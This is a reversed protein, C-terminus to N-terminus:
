SYRNSDETGYLDALRRFRPGWDNLYNYDQDGESNASGLSSLSEAVSGNGEYAYTALSDYPPATPSNDNEHVRQNIFNRVDNNDHAAAPARHVPPYLVEPVIDRRLKCEEVSEPNRLTGIDFAQTDEEGGGEDNYSVINDRVDEKSIILTEKKKQRRLAAFLVVITLLIIICLLIAVLAGTSLGATQRLVTTCLEVNGDRDCACVHVEVTGTSSQVPYDGDRIVVPVLYSSTHLRSFGSRQTLISATNDGHDQISFNSHVSEDPPLSFSFRHGGVPDDVDTARVRQIQQGAKANECVFAEYFTDLTPANDNVDLVKIYVPVRSMLGSLNKSIETAIVSINHWAAEERDLDKKTYISGNTDNIEFLQERDNRNEIKYRVPNHLVDHDAASISGIFTGFDANEKVEFTYSSREFVPPEDVDMVHIRVTATDRFHSNHHFSPDPHSNEVQVQLTYENKKEYDLPKKVIITGEQTKKETRIEFLDLGDGGTVSYDMEANKGIDEDTAKIKWTSSEKGATEPINFEYVSLLFKPPNDNVDLLTINITTTGSLGGNQGAMDKAQIVVQYHERKERDMNALATRIIGTESDVSFYPQGRLISYVLKASNGYTSDDADTATVQTVSTGVPSMEPVSATYLEKTFKPENDNIDHIKVVFNTEPEIARGTTKNVARIRLMYEAKEERDLKKIAHLNGTNEEITFISGAGEGSLIYRVTGDGKDLDSQLKGIYQKEIGMYEEQLFFQNWMWSRKSRRLAVGPGTGAEESAKHKKERTRIFFAMSERHGLLLTWIVLLLCTRITDM